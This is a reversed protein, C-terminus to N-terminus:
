IVWILYKPPQLHEMVKKWCLRYIIIYILSFPQTYPQTIRFLNSHIKILFFLTLHEDLNLDSLWMESAATPLVLTKKLKTGGIIKKNKYGVM